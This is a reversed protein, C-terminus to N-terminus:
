GGILHALVMAAIERTNGNLTLSILGLAFIISLRQAWARFAELDTMRHNLSALLFALHLWDPNGLHDCPIGKQRDRQDM